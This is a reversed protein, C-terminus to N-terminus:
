IMTDRTFRYTVMGSVGTQATSTIQCEGSSITAGISVLYGSSHMIAYEQSHATTGDQMVLLKQSQIGTSHTFHLVYEATKFDSTAITFSDITTSVGESATYTGFGTNVGYRNIQLKNLVSTTDIGVEDAFVTASVGVSGVVDLKKTPVTSGIGVRGTNPIFVFESETVNLSRGTDVGILVDTDSVFTPFFTNSSTEEETISVIGSVSAFTSQNLTNLAIRATDAFVSTSAIGCSAAFGPTGWIPAILPGQSLLSQGDNGTFATRSFSIVPSVGNGTHATDLTVQGSGIASIKTGSAINTGSVSDGVRLVSTNAISTLTLSASSSQTATQSSEFTTPLYLGSSIGVDGKVDLVREPTSTNIGVKSTTTFILNDAVDIGHKVIFPKKVAM